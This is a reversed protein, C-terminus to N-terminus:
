SGIDIYTGRTTLRLQFLFFNREALKLSLQKTVCRADVKFVTRNQVVLFIIEQKVKKEPYCDQRNMCFFMLRVCKSLENGYELSFDSTVFTVDGARHVILRYRVGAREADFFLVVMDKLKEHNSRTAIDLTM